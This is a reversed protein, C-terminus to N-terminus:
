YEDDNDDNDDNEEDNDNDNDYDGFRDLTHVLPGSGILERNAVDGPRM